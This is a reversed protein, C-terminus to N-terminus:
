GFVESFVAEVKEPEDFWYEEVLPRIETKIIADFWDLGLTSFEEGPPCFFSHGIQYARGLQRDESIKANLATMSAIIRNVVIGDMGGSILWDRYAPFGFKPELTIFAFRRRLAYDVLALSRDAINMTGIVFLNSPVSVRDDASRRYLPTVENSRGRKDSELLSFMEGFVQSLNGRNIEDVIIVFKKGPESYAAKCVELFPGDKMEFRGAEDTPRYGRVFDEYSYSPHLQITTIKSDDKFGMLAYALKRAVFTKGVGPAGQLIVNRKLNMRTIIADVEMITLFVGAKLVDETSYPIPGKQEPEIKGLPTLTWMKPSSNEILRDSKLMTRSWALQYQLETQSPRRPHPQQVVAIPLDLTDIVRRDIEYLSGSGGLDKLASLIERKLVNRSPIDM